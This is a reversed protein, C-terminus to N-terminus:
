ISPVKPAAPVSPTPVSPKPISPKPISPPSLSPPPVIKYGPPIQFQTPSPEGPTVHQPMTTQTGMSSTVRSALPMQLQPSHWVEVTQTQPMAPAPPMGPVQPMGPAKPMGPLNPKQPMAFTYMKGQVAHGAITRTGLDQVSLPAKPPTM